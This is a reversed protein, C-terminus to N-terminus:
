KPYSVIVPISNIGPLNFYNHLSNYVKQQDSGTCSVGICGETGPVNGDPHIRLLTRDTPFSPDLDLSWGPNASCMMATNDRRIRLNSGNYTGEPLNGDGYPGSVASVRFEVAMDDYGTLTTGNFVLRDLLGWPDSYKLPNSKVYQYTSFSAGRLGIIDPQTYQGMTPDYYRHMNYYLGTEQDYYQGPFRLNVIEVGLGSPNQNPQIAGFADSEWTWVVAGSQNTAARPTNLHDVDFYIIKRTPIHDIQAVPTDDRWIYTRIPAGVANLEEFLHGAEDYVYRVVQAKLSLFNLQV